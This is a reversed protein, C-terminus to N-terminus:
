AISFDRIAEKQMRKPLPAETENVNSWHQGTLAKYLVSRDCEFMKAMSVLTAKPNQKKYQRLAIVKMETLTVTTTHQQTVFFSTVYCNEPNYNKDKELRSVIPKTIEPHAAIQHRLWTDFNALGQPNDPHWCWDVVIGKAGYLHYSRDSENYCRRCIVWWRGYHAFTRNTVRGM